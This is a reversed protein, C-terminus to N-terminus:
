DVRGEYPHYKPTGERKAVSEHVQVCENFVANTVIRGAEKADFRGAEDLDPTYGYAKPKWWLGKEFDWIVYM